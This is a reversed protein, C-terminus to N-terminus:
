HKPSTLEYETTGPIGHYEMPYLYDKRLPHGAWDDPCLIRRPHLGDHDTVSDPHGDFVIGMLDYAEREHWDAAPWVGAVSPIHPDDRDVEIRVAFESALRYFGGPDAPPVLAHLDYVAALKNEALMDIASICRLLNFGLGPDDRLFAAVELWSPAAITAHPHLADAATATVAAGFRSRLIDCTKEPSM